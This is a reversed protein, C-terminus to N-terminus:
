AFWMAVSMCRLRVPRATIPFLGLFSRGFLFIFAALQQQRSIFLDRNNNKVCIAVFYCYQSFSIIIRGVRSTPQYVHGFSSSFHEADEENNEQKIRCFIVAIRSNGTFLHTVNVKLDHRIETRSFLSALFKAMEAYKSAPGLDALGDNIRQHKLWNLISVAKVFFALVVFCSSL